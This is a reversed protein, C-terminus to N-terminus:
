SIAVNVIKRYCESLLVSESRYYLSRTIMEGPKHAKNIKTRASADIFGLLIAEVDEARERARLPSFPPAAPAEADEARKSPGSRYM